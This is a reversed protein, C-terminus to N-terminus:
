PAHDKPTRLTRVWALFQKVWKDYETRGADTIIYAVTNDKSEATVWGRQVLLDLIASVRDQRQSPLGPVRNM